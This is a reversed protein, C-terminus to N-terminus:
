AIWQGRLNEQKDEVTSYMTTDTAVETESETFSGESDIFEFLNQYIKDKM